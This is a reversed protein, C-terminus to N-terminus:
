TTLFEAIANRLLYLQWQQWGPVEQVTGTYYVEVHNESTGTIAGTREFWWPNKKNNNNLGVNTFNWTIEDSIFAQLETALM